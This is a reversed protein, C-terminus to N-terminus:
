YITFSCIFYRFLQSESGGESFLSVGSSVNIFTSFRDVLTSVQDVTRIRPSNTCSLLLCLLSPYSSCHSVCCLSPSLGAWVAGCSPTPTAERGVEPEAGRQAGCKHCIQASPGPMRSTQSQPIGLYGHPKTSQAHGASVVVEPCLPQTTRPGRGPPAKRASTRSDVARHPPKPPPPRRAWALGPSGPRVSRRDAKQGQPRDTRSVAHSPTRRGGTKQTLKQNASHVGACRRVHVGVRACGCM